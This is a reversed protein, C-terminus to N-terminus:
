QKTSHHFIAKSVLTFPNQLSEVTELRRSRRPRLVSSGTQLVGREAKTTFM